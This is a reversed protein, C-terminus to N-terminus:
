LNAKIDSWFLTLKNRISNTFQGDIVTDADEDTSRTHWFDSESIGAFQDPLNVGDESPKVIAKTNDTQKIGHKMSGWHSPSIRMRPLRSNDMATMAFDDNSTDDFFIVKVLFVSALLYCVMAVSNVLKPSLNFKFKGILWSFPAAFMATNQKRHLERIQEQINGLLEPPPEPSELNELVAATHLLGEYEEQCSECSRLHELFEQKENDKFMSEQRHLVLKERTQECNMYLLGRM